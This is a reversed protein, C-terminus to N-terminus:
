SAVGGSVGAADVNRAQWEKRRLRYLVHKRLQPDVVKPHDFDASPDRRMGIREMVATSRANNWVAFSVIEDLNLESFGFGLLASAGESALGKGWFEPALRWGVEFSGEPAVGEIEAAHLGICGICEGTAVLEAATWGYGDRIAEDRMRDM